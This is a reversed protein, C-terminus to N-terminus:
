SPSNRGRFSLIPISFFFVEQLFEINKTEKKKRSDPKTKQKSNMFIQIKDLFPHFLFHFELVFVFRIVFILQCFSTRRKEIIRNKRHRCFLCLFNPNQFLSCCFFFLGMKRTKKFKGGRTM